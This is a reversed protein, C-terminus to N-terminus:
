FVFRLALQFQRSTGTGITRNLPSRIQGFTAPTSINASPDGFQARNVINFAEARFILEKREALRTRKHLAMDIQVLGPGRAIHRGANGWTGPAPVVFAALNLWNNITREGAPYISVGPVVNPRQNSTNGDPVDRSSRSVSINVPRGTRATWIGSLEWGELLKGAPGRRNWYRRGPGFPLELVWNSTITHRIDTPSDGRDCRRCNVNQPQAGEGGGQNGDNISHSWMYESAWLFGGRFQRHLSVQLGQFSSNGLNQKEDIRGFQPLPRRGLAPDIVNIYSRSFLKHASSAIYGIQTVFHAPLEQQISLGWQISYLDRRDRQLSRPTIGISRAQGLFPEIPYALGGAVDRSTLSFNDAMNDLAANVDDNQGPGHFVGFGARIVTKDGFAAPSWALGIRPDWNNRDPFYWPTGAPCFGGCAMDFVRYRDKVERSVSYYEYRVGLNLTLNRRVKFEDQLFGFFFTRRSGLVPIGANVSLSDVRNRVLDDRSAFAVSATPTNPDAVNVHIRRVEVGAKLTHRGRTVVLNDLLSYSTPAEILLSPGNLTMFGPVTITQALPGYSYRTLASRNYGAKWENVVTPSFIRQFQVVLNSPRFNSEQRDVPLLSRPASILGDDVNFRAFFSNSDSFRHDFRFTGSDERWSQRTEANLEDINADSTPRMGAPYTDLIPRVAPSTALARARFAASPVNAFLTQGLRQRLGEYNAFFFTRNRVIPGGLNAGFQNLRFPPKGAFDFFNRADLRDNRLFEFLSGHFENTGSKSVLSVNAGSGGGSEATYLSASVRFEAISDTSIVLRLAAEQRPDKVGTADVGDFTWNNDDRARGVFRITQQSGDGTNIAGPALAMLSAWHRGNLPIERVQQSAIVTGLAASTRELPVATELVEVETRVTAVELQVDLTRTDGVQLVIKEFRVPRFGELEFSVSYSGIPLQPLVYAGGASSRTERRLGTGEHLATVKAGSVVAGTPDTVTGTITAVDVQAWLTAAALWARVSGALIMALKGPM